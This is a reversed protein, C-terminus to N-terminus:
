FKFTNAGKSDSGSRFAALTIKLKENLVRSMKKVDAESYEYNTKNSCKSLSELADLTKQVRSAAVKAFRDRKEKMDEQIFIVGFIHVCIYPVFKIRKSGVGAVIHESTHLRAEM